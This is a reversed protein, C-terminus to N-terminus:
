LGLCASSHRQTLGCGCVARVSSGLFRMGDSDRSIPLVRQLIAAVPIMSWVLVWGTCDTMANAACLIALNPLSDADYRVFYEAVNSSRRASAIGIRSSRNQQKVMKESSTPAFNRARRQKVAGMKAHLFKHM